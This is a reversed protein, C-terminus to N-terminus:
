LVEDISQLVSVGVILCVESGIWLVFMVLVFFAIWSCASGVPRESWPINRCPLACIKIWTHKTENEEEPLLRCVDDHAFRLLQSGHIGAKGFSSVTTPSCGEHKLWVCVDEASARDTHFQVRCRQSAETDFLSVTGDFHREYALQMATKGHANKIDPDSGAELLLKVVDSYGSEAANHLATNGTGLSEPSQFDLDPQAALILRLMPLNEEKM